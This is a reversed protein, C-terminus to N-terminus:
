AGGGARRLYPMLESAFREFHLPKTWYDRAGARRALAIEDPMASASLAVVPVAATAPEAQLQALVQLGTMDPLQMDLLVLDPPDSRALALGEAGLSASRLTVGPWRRFFEQVLMLNVPNDEIYLVEGQPRADTNTGAVLAPPTAESAAGDTASAARARPLGVRVRTGQGVLSDLEIRGGMHELLQRSLSLGIGTGQVASRERGLRNFPQFLQTQQDPNMGLGDDIVLIEV